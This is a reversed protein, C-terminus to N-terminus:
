DAPGAGSILIPRVAEPFKELLEPPPSFNQGGLERRDVMDRLALTMMEKVAAVPMSAAEFEQAHLDIYALIDAEMREVAQELDATARDQSDGGELQRSKAAYVEVLYPRAVEIVQRRLHTVQDLRDKRVAEVWAVRAAADGLACCAYYGHARDAARKPSLFNCTWIPNLPRHLSDFPVFRQPTYAPCEDFDEPFPREYPCEDSPRSYGGPGGDLGPEGVSIPAEEAPAAPLM